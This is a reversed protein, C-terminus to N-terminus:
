TQQQSFKMYDKAKNMREAMWQYIPRELVKATQRRSKITLM